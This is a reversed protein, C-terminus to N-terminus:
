RPPRHLGTLTFYVAVLQGRLAPARAPAEAALDAFRLAVGTIAESIADPPVSPAIVGDDILRRLFRTHRRNARNHIEDHLHRIEPDAIAQHAIVTLMGRRRLCADFFAEVASRGTAAPTSTDAREQLELFEERVRDALARFVDEKSPFYAYVTPRTVGADAALAAISTRAYGLRCFTREASDLLLARKDEVDLTRGGIGRM